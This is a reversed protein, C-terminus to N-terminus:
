LRLNRLYGPCEAVVGWADHPTCYQQRLRQECEAPSYRPHQSCQALNGRLQSLWDNGPAPAPAAQPVPLGGASAYSEGLMANLGPIAMAEEGATMGAGQPNDLGALIRAPDRESGERRASVVITTMSVSSNSNEMASVLVTEAQLQPTRDILGLAGSMLPQPPEPFGAMVHGSSAQLTDPQNSDLRLPASDTLAQGLWVGAVASLTWLVALFVLIGRWM